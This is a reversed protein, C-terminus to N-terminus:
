VVLPEWCQTLKEENVANVVVHDRDYQAGGTFFFKLTCLNGKFYLVRVRHKVNDKFYSGRVVRPKLAVRTLAPAFLKEEGWPASFVFENAASGAKPILKSVLSGAQEEGGRWYNLVEAKEAQVPFSPFVATTLHLEKLATM